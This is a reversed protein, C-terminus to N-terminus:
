PAQIVAKCGLKFALKKCKLEEFSPRQLYNGEDEQGRLCHIGRYWLYYYGADDQAVINGNVDVEGVDVWRKAAKGLPFRTARVMGAQDFDAPWCRALESLPKNSDTMRAIWFDSLRVGQTPVEEIKLDSDNVLTFSDFVAYDNLGRVAKAPPTGLKPNKPDYVQYYDTNYRSYRPLLKKAIGVVRPKKLIRDNGETISLQSQKRQMGPREVKDNVKDDGGSGDAPTNMDCHNSISRDDGEAKTDECDPLFLSEM